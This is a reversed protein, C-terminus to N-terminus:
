DPYFRNEIAQCLAHYLCVHMEQITPTDDAPVRVAIEAVEALRGGTKGTLAVTTLGVARAAAVACVVNPANGSTSIAILADGPRGLGLVQQAFILEAGLDNAVATIISPNASLSVCPLGMQLRDVAHIEPVLSSIDGILRESLPRKKSFGKVLEAEIHNADAASGGNGCVLLKGGREFCTVITDHILMLPGVCEKLEPRKAVMAEFAGETM